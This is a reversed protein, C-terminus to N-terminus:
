AVAMEGQLAEDSEKRNVEEWKKKKQRGEM